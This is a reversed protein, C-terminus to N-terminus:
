AFHILSIFVSKRHIFLMVTLQNLFDLFIFQNKVGKFLM